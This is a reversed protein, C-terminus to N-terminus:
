EMARDVRLDAWLALHDSIDGADSTAVREVAIGRTFIADLKMALWHSTAGIHATPTAFGHARMTAEFCDDQTGTPVPIVHDLWEFPSINFDGAIIVPTSRADADALVPAIQRRREAATIRNDLHVAYVTVPAGGLSLTAVIAVKRESNYHLDYRPLEIVRADVIPARSLLAVGDTGDGNVHGPAYVTYYGLERGVICAGSCPADTHHVEELMILDAARLEPEDRLARAITTGPKMEVNFEVMRLAAPLTTHAAAPVDTRSTAVLARDTPIAHNSCATVLALAAAAALLPVRLRRDPQAPDM